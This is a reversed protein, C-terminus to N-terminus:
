NQEEKPKGTVLLFHIKTAQTRRIKYKRKALIWTM